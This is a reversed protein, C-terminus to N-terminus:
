KYITQDTIIAQMPIDWHEIPLSDYQQCQHALGIVQPPQELHKIASLTRDYFGGGMGLRNLQQDFAVLPTFIIDLSALDTVKTVDLLPEDIAFRNPKLTTQHNYELFLLHHQSFPHIVPLYITKNLQWCLTILPKTSIEGDNSLYIAIKQAASFEALQQIHKSLQGAAINQQQESLATRRNRADTRTQQKNM